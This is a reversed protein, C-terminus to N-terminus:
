MRVRRYLTRSAGGKAGKREGEWVASTVLFPVGRQIGQKHLNFFKRSVDRDRGLHLFPQGLCLQVMRSPASVRGMVAANHQVLRLGVFIIPERLQGLTM